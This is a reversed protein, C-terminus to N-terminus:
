SVDKQINSENTVKYSKIRPIVCLSATKYNRTNNFAQKKRNAVCKLISKIFIAVNVFNCIYWQFTVIWVWTIVQWFITNRIKYTKMKEKKMLYTVSKIIHSYFYFLHSGPRFRRKSAGDQGGNQKLLYTLLYMRLVYCMVRSVICYVHLMRGTGFWNVLHRKSKGNQCNMTENIEEPCTTLADIVYRSFVGAGENSNLEILLYKYKM